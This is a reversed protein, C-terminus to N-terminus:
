RLWRQLVSPERHAMQSVGCHELLGVGPTHPGHAANPESHVYWRGTLRRPTLKEDARCAPTDLHSLLRSLRHSVPAYRAGALQVVHARDALEECGTGRASDDLLLGEGEALKSVQFYSATPVGSTM